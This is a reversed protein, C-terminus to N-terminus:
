FSGQMNRALSSGRTADVGSDGSFSARELQALQKRKRAASATGQLFEEEGTQQTYNIDAEGYISSLKKAEPLVTAVNQFGTRAANQDVGLKQLEIMRDTSLPALNQQLAAAGIESATVKQQLDVLATDPKLFYGVLDAQSITPYFQKLTSLINPDANQVQNVALDLRSGLETPAIDNGILNAFEDQTAYKDQGYASLQERFKNELSLYTAEDLANKGAAQRAVNGAFRKLYPANYTPDTKLMLAAQNPGVNAQMLKTISPVMEALGYSTFVSKLLAFADLQESTLGSASSGGSVTTSVTTIPTWVSGDMNQAIAGAAAGATNVDAINSNINTITKRISAVDAQADKIVQAYNPLPPTAAIKATEADKLENIQARTPTKTNQVANAATTYAAEAALQAATKSDNVSSGSGGDIALKAM